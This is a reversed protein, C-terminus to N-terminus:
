RRTYISSTGEIRHCLPVAQIDLHLGDLRQDRQTRNSDMPNDLSAKWDIQLMRPNVVAPSNNLGIAVLRVQDQREGLGALLLSSCAQRQGAVRGSDPPASDTPRRSTLRCVLRPEVSRDLFAAYCTPISAGPLGEVSSALRDACHSLETDVAQPDNNM